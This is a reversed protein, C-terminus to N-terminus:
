RRLRTGILGAVALLSVAGPAPVAAFYLNDATPYVSVEGTAATSSVSITTIQAGLSYFGVFESPTSAFGIFASGDNLTVQIIAPVANFSADTGFFNGGVGQVGPSMSFTITEPLVTSFQGNQVSLGGAAVATWNIGGVSSSYPSAYTGNAIGNFTETIVPTGSLASFSSWLAFDTFRIISASSASTLASAAFVCAALRASTM